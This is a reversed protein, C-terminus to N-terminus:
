NGADVTIWFQKVHGKKGSFILILMDNGCYMDVICDYDDDLLQDNVVDIAEGGSCIGSIHINGNCRIDINHNRGKLNALHLM